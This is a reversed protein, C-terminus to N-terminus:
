RTRRADRGGTDRVVVQDQFRLDIRAPLPEAGLSQEFVRLKLLQSTVLETDLDVRAGSDALQLELGAGEDRLAIRAPALTPLEFLPAFAALLERERLRKGGADLSFGELVPLGPVLHEAALVRGAVDIAPGSALRAVASRPELRVELTSPLHRHLQLHAFRNDIKARARLPAEAVLWLPRGLTAAEIAACQADPLRVTGTWTVNRVSFLPSSAVAAGVALVVGTAAATLVLPERWPKSEFRSSRPAASARGRLVSRRM